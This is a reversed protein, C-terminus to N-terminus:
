IYTNLESHSSACGSYNALCHLNKKYPIISDVWEPKRVDQHQKSLRVELLASYFLYPTCICCKVTLAVKLSLERKPTLQHWWRHWSYILSGVRFHHQSDSSDMEIDVSPQKILATTRFVKETADWKPLCFINVGWRGLLITALHDM